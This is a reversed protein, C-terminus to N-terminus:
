TGACRRAWSGTGIWGIRTKGPAFELGMDPERPLKKLPERTIPSPREPDDGVDDDRSSSRMPRTSDENRDEIIAVGAPCVLGPGARDGPVGPARTEARLDLWACDETWPVGHVFESILVYRPRFDAASM